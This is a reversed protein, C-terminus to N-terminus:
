MKKLRRFMQSILSCENSTPTNNFQWSLTCYTKSSTNDPYKKSRKKDLRKRNIFLKVRFVELVSQFDWLTIQFHENCPHWNLVAATRGEEESRDATLPFDKWLARDNTFHHTVLLVYHHLRNFLIIELDMVSSRSLSRSFNVSKYKFHSECLWINIVM